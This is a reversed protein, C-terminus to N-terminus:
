RKGIISAKVKYNEGYLEKLVMYRHNGDTLKYMKNSEYMYKEDKKIARVTLPLINKYKKISEKLLDWNYEKSEESISGTNNYIEKITSFKSYSSSNINKLKIEIIRNFEKDYPFLNNLLHTNISSLIYPIIPPIIMIFIMFFRFSRPQKIMYSKGYREKGIKGERLKERSVRYVELKKKIYNIM